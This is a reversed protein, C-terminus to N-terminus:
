NASVIIGSLLDSIDIENSVHKITNCTVVRAVGAEKLDHYSNGSFVAHVGICVIPHMKADKLHKVTEVM